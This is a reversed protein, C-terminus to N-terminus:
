ACAATGRYGREVYGMDAAPPAPARGQQRGRSFASFSLPVGQRVPVKGRCYCPLGVLDSLASFRWSYGQPDAEGNDRGRNMVNIGCFFTHVSGGMQQLHARLGRPGVNQSRILRLWDLRQEDTLRIAKAGENVRGWQPKPLRALGYLNEIVTRWSVVFKCWIILRM